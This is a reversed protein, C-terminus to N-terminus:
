GYRTMSGSNPLHPLKMVGLGTSQKSPRPEVKHWKSLENSLPRTTQRTLPHRSSPLKTVLYFKIPRYARPPTGEITTSLPLSRSGPPGIKPNAPPLSVFTNNWGNTRESPCGM